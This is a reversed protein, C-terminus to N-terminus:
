TGWTQVTESVPFSSAWSVFMLIWVLHHQPILTLWFMGPWRLNALWESYVTWFHTHTLIFWVEGGLMTMTLIHHRINVSVIHHWISFGHFARTERAFSRDITSTGYRHEKFHLTYYVTNGCDYVDSYKLARRTEQAWGSSRLGLGAGPISKRRPRKHRHVGLINGYIVM